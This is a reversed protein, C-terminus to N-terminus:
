QMLEDDNGKCQNRLKTRYMQYKYNYDIGLLAAVFTSTEGFAVLVSSDIVGLPPVIFGAILLGSGVITLIVAVALRADLKSKQTM